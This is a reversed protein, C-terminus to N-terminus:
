TGSLVLSLNDSYGDIYIGQAWQMTITVLATRATKPVAGAKSAPLLKTVNGRALDSPVLGRLRYYNQPDNPQLVRLRDRITIGPTIVLFRKAYRLNSPNAVKNPTQRAILMAM